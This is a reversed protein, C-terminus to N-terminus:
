CHLETLADRRITVLQAGGKSGVVNLAILGAAAAATTFPPRSSTLTTAAGTRTDLVTIDTNNDFIVYPGTLALLAPVIDASPPRYVVVPKQRGSTTLYIVDRQATGTGVWARWAYTSGDQLLAVTKGPDVHFGPPLSPSGHWVVKGDRSWEIAGGILQPGIVAGSDLTSQGATALDYDYVKGQGTNSVESWYVHGDLLQPDSVIMDTGLGADRVVHVTGTALNVAEIAGIAGQGRGLIVAFAAWQTDIQGSGLRLSPQGALSTPLRYLVRTSRDPRVLVLDGNPALDSSALVAGTASMALISLGSSAAYSAAGPPRIIPSQVSAWSDPFPITCALPRFPSNAKPVTPTPASSPSRSASPAPATSTATGPHVHRGPLNGLVAAAAIAAVVTAALLPRIWVPRHREARASPYGVQANRILREILESDAHTVSAVENLTTTVQQEVVSTRDM